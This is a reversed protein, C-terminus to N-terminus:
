PLAVVLRWGNSPTAGWRASGGVSEVREAIGPLGRGSGMSPPAATAGPGNEVTVTVGSRCDVTVSVAAGPAHRLANTLAEQVVRHVVAAQVPTVAAPDGQVSLDVRRGATTARRVIMELVDRTLLRDPQPDLVGVLNDLDQEAERATAIIADLAETAAAQDVEALQHGARAQIVIVTMCHAVVDHLERAMRARELRVAERAFREQEAVLEDARQQLRAAIRTHQRFTVGVLWWGVGLITTPVDLAVAWATAVALAAMWPASWRLPLMFGLSCTVWCIGAFLTISAVTQWVGPATLVSDASGFVTVVALLLVAAALEVRVRTVVVALAVAVPVARASWEAGSPLGDIVLIAIEPVLCVVAAVLWTVRRAAPGPAPQPPLQRTAAALPLPRELAEPRPLTTM